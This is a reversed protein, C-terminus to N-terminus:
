QSALKQKAQQWFSELEELSYDSLPRGALVEVQEIRALFRQNTERLAFEPNVELWRALNVLTFLVDGLEEGQRQVSEHAIAQKLEELEEDFKAWVSQLDPWEFGVAAVKQSIKLCAGLSNMSRPIKALKTSFNQAVGKAQAEQTKVQEWTIAVEEPTRAQASGFVHPHRRILKDTIGAAIEAWGFLGREHFIQAQLAIQLLLDGLEEQIHQVDGSQLADVTEYAEELVYPCLSEPTQAADWPCESRVRTVVAMLRDLRGLDESLTQLSVGAISVGPILDRCYPELKQAIEDEAPHGPVAYAFPREQQLLDELEKETIEQVPYGRQLLDLVVPHERDGVYLPNAQECATKARLTLHDPSGPGLGILTCPKM